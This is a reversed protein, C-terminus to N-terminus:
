RAGECLLFRTQSLVGILRTQGRRTAGCRGAELDIKISCLMSRDWGSGTMRLDIEDM